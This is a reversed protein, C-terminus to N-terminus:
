RAAVTQALRNLREPEPTTTSHRRVLREEHPTLSSGRELVPDQRDVGALVMVVAPVEPHRARIAAWAAELAAVM